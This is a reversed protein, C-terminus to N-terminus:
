VGEKRLTELAERIIHQIETKSPDIFECLAFDEPEVEYIGLGEMLDIDGVVAAKILQLPYIRFPFVQEFEGTLVLPRQQGHLQTDFSYTNPILRFSHEADRATRRNRRRQRRIEKKDFGSFFIRHFSFKKLGPMLWGMFEYYDGEPLVTVLDDCAGIYPTALPSSSDGIRSGSLVNGSIIRHNSSMALQESCVIDLSAGALMRYYRPSVVCPGAFAVVKEPLYEGTLFLHGIVAVEQPRATWVVEGKNIPDIAAIQTGVNGAPHPGGFFHKEIRGEELVCEQLRQGKRFGLHVKGDTLLSLVRLGAMFDEERGQMVYDYDPALPATDFCSVFIANPCDGPMPVTGFPRRRLMTWCGSEVLIRRAEDRSLAELPKVSKASEPAGPADDSREVVVALLARREGRVVAKVRGSVPSVFRAWGNNKDEFLPTGASVKDGEAVLLRPVVGVYDTPKVAYEAVSRVDATSEQAAGEM